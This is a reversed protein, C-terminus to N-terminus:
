FWWRGISDYVTSGIRLERGVSIPGAILKKVPSQTGASIWVSGVSSWQWNNANDKWRGRHNATHSSYRVNADFCGVDQKTHVSGMYFGGVNTGNYTRTVSNDGCAAWAPAAPLLGFVLASSVLLVKIRLRM